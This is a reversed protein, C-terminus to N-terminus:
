PWPLHTGREVRSTTDLSANSVHVCHINEQSRISPRKASSGEAAPVPLAERNVRIQRALEAGLGDDAVLVGSDNGVELYTLRTSRQCVIDDDLSCGRM